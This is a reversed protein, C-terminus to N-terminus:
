SRGGSGIGSSRFVTEGPSLTTRMTSSSGCKARSMIPSDPRYTAEMAAKDSQLKAVAAQMTPLFSSPNSFDVPGFYPHFGVIFAAIEKRHEPPLSDLWDLFASTPAKMENHM